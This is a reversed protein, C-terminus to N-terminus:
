LHTVPGTMDLRLHELLTAEGFATLEATRPLMRDPNVFGGLAGLPRSVSRWASRVAWINPPENDARWGYAVLLALAEDTLADEDTEGELILLTIVEAVATTWGHSSLSDAVTRWAYEPDSNMRDGKVTKKVSGKRHRIAKANLLLEHLSMLERSDSEKQPADQIWGKDWGFREAGSQVMATPLYGAGTMGTDDTVWELFWMIPEMNVEFDPPSPIPHLLRNAHRAVLAHLEPARGELMHLRGHIRETMISSRMSQGPLEPHRSDIMEEAISMAETKWGRAGPVMRGDTIAQELAATVALHAANEEGAMMDSWVFGDLDPPHIGSADFAKQFAAYGEKSGREHAALIESTQSSRFVSAYSDLGLAEFLTAGAALIGRRDRDDVMWKVSLDYWAFRQVRSLSIGEVGEEGAVWDYVARADDESQADDVAMEALASEVSDPLM